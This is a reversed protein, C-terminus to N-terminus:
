FAEPLLQSVTRMGIGDLIIIDNPKMFEAIVQRCSGCPTVWKDDLKGTIAMTVPTLGSSIANFLAVREACITLGYSKNEINCGSVIQDNQCLLAAGINYLSYPNYALKSAERAKYILIDYNSL